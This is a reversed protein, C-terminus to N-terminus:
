ALTYKVGIKCPQAQSCAASRCAMSSSLRLLASATATFIASPSCAHSSSSPTFFIPYHVHTCSSKYVRASTSQMCLAASHNQASRTHISRNWWALVHVAHTCADVRNTMLGVAEDQGFWAPMVAYLCDPPQVCVVLQCWDHPYVCVCIGLRLFVLMRM